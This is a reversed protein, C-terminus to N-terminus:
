SLKSYLSGSAWGLLAWSIAGLVISTAAFHGTLEAPVGSAFEHPHPAGIIHPLAILLIAGGRVLWNSSFVLAALAALTAAATGLWWIQRAGLEAAASGPLEPPLGLAPALTFAAFGAMGWIVGEGASVERGSLAFAGVLVLAFGVSVVVTALITYVSRELGDEPMWAEEGGEQHPADGHVLHLRGVSEDGASFDALVLKGALAPGHLAAGETGGGEYKEAQVILPVAFFLHLASMVLGTFFGAGLASGFIRQFM